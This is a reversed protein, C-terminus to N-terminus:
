GLVQLTFSTLLAIILTFAFALINRYLTFSFGLVEAEAPLHVFSLTVWSLIFAIVANLSIGQGLLEGGFLYSIVPNGSAAAGALTALLTDAIVNGRFLTKLMDATVLVQFLGVLGIVGVLLPTMAWFALFSKKLAQRLSSKKQQHSNMAKQWKM